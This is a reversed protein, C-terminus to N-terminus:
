RQAGGRRRGKNMCLLGSPVISASYLPFGQLLGHLIHGAGNHLGTLEIVPELFCCDLYEHLAQASNLKRVQVRAEKIM